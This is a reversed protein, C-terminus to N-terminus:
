SGLRNVLKEHREEGMEEPLNSREEIMGQLTEIRESPSPHSSLFTPPSGGSSKLRRFFSIFGRPNLSTQAMYSFGSADAQREHDRSYKLLFGQTAASTALQEVLSPKEGFAASSLANVGHMAVLRQAIHRNTVHAVEHSMVAMVEAASDAKKLLGSYFYIQGGPGAFANVTDPADIVQFEFEIGEPVEGGAADVATEGLTQLYAQVEDNTHITEEKEIQKSFKQGLKEEEKAPLAVNAATRSAQGAAGKTTSCGVAWAATLLPLTAFLLALMTPFSRNASTSSSSLVNQPM